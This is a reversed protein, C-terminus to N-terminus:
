FESIILSTMVFVFYFCLLIALVGLYQYVWRVMKFGTQLTETDSNKIGTWIRKGSSWIYLAAFFVLLTIIFLIGIPDVSGQKVIIGLLLVTVFFLTGGTVKLWRSATLWNEAVSESVFLSQEENPDNLGFDLPQGTNNETM